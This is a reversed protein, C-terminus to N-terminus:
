TRTASRVLLTCLEPMEMGSHKAAMPMLSHDTFGPMTNVELLWAGHNNVIYDARAIDKIGMETCLLTTWEACLNQPLEPELIYQTDEREYKAEFDYSQLDTPPIIEIIPLTKGCVFGVTVERGKIFSEAIIHERKQLSDLHETVEKQNMCIFISISSGEENPKLVLPPDISPSSNKRVHCWSPTQIGLRSGFQKTAIKDMATRSVQSSSGVFTKGALELLEQLPGGEGFPGHLVPFIVDSEILEIEELSPTDIVVSSVDFLDTQRLANSVATGSAISIEREADPGGMLVTVSQQSM